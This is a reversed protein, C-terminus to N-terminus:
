RPDNPDNSTDSVPCCKTFISPKSTQQSSVNWVAQRPNSAAIRRVHCTKGFFRAFISCFLKFQLLSVLSCLTLLDPNALNPQIALFVM